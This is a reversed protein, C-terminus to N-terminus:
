GSTRSRLWISALPRLQFVLTMAHTGVVRLTRAHPRVEPAINVSDPHADAAAFDGHDALRDGVFQEDALSSGMPWVSRMRLQRKADDAHQLRGFAHLTKPWILVVRHQNGYVDCSAARKPDCTRILMIRMWAALASFM